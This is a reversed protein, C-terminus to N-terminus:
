YKNVLHSHSSSMRDKNKLLVQKAKKFYNDIHKLIQEPTGTKKRWGIKVRDYALHSGEKPRVTLDGGQSLEIGIKDPLINDDGMRDLWIFLMHKMPDNEPIGNIWESKDKGLLFSIQITKGLRKSLNVKVFSKSFIKSITKQIKTVFDDADISENLNTNLFLDIKDLIKM